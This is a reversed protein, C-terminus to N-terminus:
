LSAPELRGARVCAARPREDDPAGNGPVAFELASRPSVLRQAPRGREVLPTRARAVFGEPQFRPVELADLDDVIEFSPDFCADGRQARALPSQGSRFSRESFGGWAL